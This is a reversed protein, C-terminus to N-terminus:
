QGGAEKAVADGWAMRVVLFLREEGSGHACLAWSLEALVRVPVGSRLGPAPETRACSATSPRQTIIAGAGPAGGAPEPLVGTEPLVGPELLVGPRGRGGRVWRGPGGPLVAACGPRVAAGPAAHGCNRGCDTRGDTRRDTRAPLARSALAARLLSLSALLRM